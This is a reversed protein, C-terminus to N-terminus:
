SASLWQASGGSLADRWWSGQMAREEAYRPEVLEEYCGRAIVSVWRAAGKIEDLQICIKPNQADVRNETRFTAFAYVFGAGYV